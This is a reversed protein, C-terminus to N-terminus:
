VPREMSREPAIFRVVAQIAANMHQATRHREHVLTHARDTIARVRESDIERALMRLTRRYTVPTVAIFHEGDNFGLHLLDPTPQGVLLTRCGPIEFYKAYTM